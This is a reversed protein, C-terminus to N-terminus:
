DEKIDDNEDDSREDVLTSQFVARYLIRLILAYWFLNVMQLLVIPILVQYQM